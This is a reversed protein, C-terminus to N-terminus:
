KSSPPALKGPSLSPAPAPNHAGFPSTLDGPAGAPPAGMGPPPGGMGSPPAGMGGGGLAAGFSKMLGTVRAVMEDVQPQTYDASVRFTMGKAETKIPELMTAVGLMMVQPSKKTQTLQQTAQDNIAKADAESGTDMNVDFSLGKAFDVSGLVAQLSALPAMRADGKMSDRAGQPVVGVGWIADSTKARKVLASLTANKTASAVEKGATIDIMKKLWPGSGLVLTKGDLMTLGGNDSADSGSNYIKKGNYETVVLKENNRTALFTGCKNLRADDVAAKLRIVAAGDKSPSSQDPMAVFISEIGDSSAPDVCSGSFDAYAKKQQENAASTYVDIAKKWMATGRVRAVNIGFVMQTEQPVLALDDKSASGGHGGCALAFLSAGCVVSVGLQKLSSRSIAPMSM